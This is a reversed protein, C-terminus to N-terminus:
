FNRVCVFVVDGWNLFGVRCLFFLCACYAQNGTREGGWVVASGRREFGFVM